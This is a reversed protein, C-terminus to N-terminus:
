KLIFRSLREPLCEMVLETIKEIPIEKLLELFSEALIQKTTKRKAM